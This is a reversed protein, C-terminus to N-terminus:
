GGWTEERLGGKGLRERNHIRLIQTLRSDTKVEGLKEEFSGFCSVNRATTIKTTRLLQRGAKGLTTTYPRAQM